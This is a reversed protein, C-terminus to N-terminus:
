KGSKQLIKIGEMRAWWINGNGGMVKVPFLTDKPEVELVTFPNLGLGNEVGLEVMDGVSINSNKM